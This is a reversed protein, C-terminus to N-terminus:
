YNKLIICFEGKVLFYKPALVEELTGRIFEEFKKTLERGIVVKKTSGFIEKMDQLTKLIRYPSEYFVLCTELNKLKALQNKRKGSKISLFGGFYFSSLPFGSAPLLTTLASAGPVSIIEIEQEIAGQTLLFGPDSILPTGAESILAVDQGTNLYSLVEPLRQSENKSHYSILKQAKIQYTNLLVSATRTDEALIIPTTKLIELARLTIDKLHGIPTAVLYLKGKM